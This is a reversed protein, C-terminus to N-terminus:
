NKFHIIFLNSFENFKFYNEGGYPDINLHRIEEQRARMDNQKILQIRVGQLRKM